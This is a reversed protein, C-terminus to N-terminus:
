QADQDKEKKFMFKKDSMFFNFGQWLYRPLPVENIKAYSLATAAGALLAAVVFLLMGTLFVKVFVFIIVAGLYWFFQKLTFPGIIKSETNIFQPVQFRM